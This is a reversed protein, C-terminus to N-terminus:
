FYGIAVMTSIGKSCYLISYSAADLGHGHLWPPHTILTLCCHLTEKTMSSSFHPEKAPAATLMRELNGTWLVESNELKPIKKHLNNKDHYCM